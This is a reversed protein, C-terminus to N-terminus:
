NNIGLLPALWLHINLNAETETPSPASKFIPPDEFFGEQSFRASNVSKAGKSSVRSIDYTVYFSFDNTFVQISVQLVGLRHWM